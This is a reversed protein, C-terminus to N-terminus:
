DTSASTPHNRRYGERALYAGAALLALIVAILTAIGVGTFALRNNASTTGSGSPDGPGNPNDTGDGPGCNTQCNPDVVREVNPGVTASALSLTALQDGLVSVKVATETFTKGAPTSATDQVNAKVSVLDSLVTDVSDNGLLGTLAPDVLGNNLANALDRVAGDSDFLGDALGDGIGGILADVDLSAPVTGGLLSISATANAATGNLLQDVTGNIDVNVSSQLDPLVNDVTDCVTQTTWGIIGQTVGGVVGGLDLGGLLGGLGGGSATGGSDGSLIDGIIPVDVLHCADSTAVGGDSLLNLDAHVDVNANHLASNVRDVIQDALTAVTDTIGKLVQSIVEDSLIETGPALNNLDGGLLAELDVEVAGTQLNFHVAGNGYVGTLLDQVAANLDTDISATVNASSGIAGLVPDIIGDVSNGLVGNDGTLELLSGDVTDLAQNVKATLDGIAPSSFILTADEITYDGSASTNNGKAQASVANLDLKLDTLVSAFSAGILADLDLTVDGAAGSGVDGAGIAGDSGIAGAAALSVGNKDAEAYQNLVGADLFTGLNAQIGGPQEIDVTQLVSADLPDKSTRLPQTGDNTATAAGLEVAASLDSGLLSGSLFQAEAFSSTATAANATVPILSLGAGLAIV